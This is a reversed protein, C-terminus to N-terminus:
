DQCFHSNKGLYMKWYDGNSVPFKKLVNLFDLKRCFKTRAAELIFNKLRFCGNQSWFLQSKSALWALRLTMKLWRTRQKIDKEYVRMKSWTILMIGRSSFKQGNKDDRFLLIHGVSYCDLYFPDSRRANKNRILIIWALFIEDRLGFANKEPVRIM